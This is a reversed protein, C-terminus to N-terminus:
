RAPRSRTRSRTATTVGGPCRARQVRDADSLKVFYRSALTYHNDGAKVQYTADPEALPGTASHATLPLALMALAALWPRTM